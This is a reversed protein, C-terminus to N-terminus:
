AFNQHMQTKECQIATAKINITICHVSLILVYSNLLSVFLLMSKPTIILYNIINNHVDM